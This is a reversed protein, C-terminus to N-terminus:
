AGYTIKVIGSTDIVAEASYMWLAMYVRRVEVDFDLKRPTSMWQYVCSPDILYSATTTKSRVVQLGDMSLSTIGSNTGDGNVVQGAASVLKRGTTDLAGYMAKFLNSAAALTDFREPEALDLIGNDFATILAPGTATGLAITTLGSLGDLMAALRAEAATTSAALMRDWVMAEVQPGAKDILERTFAAKGSLASPNVTQSDTTYTALTPEIDEVHASVLNGSSAYKPIVFPNLDTLSGGSVLSGLVRPRAPRARVYLDGRFGAPTLSAVNAQTVFKEEFFKEIRHAAEGDGKAAAFGDKILNFEGSGGAFAYPAPENVMTVATPVDVPRQFTELLEKNGEKIAAALAAADFEPMIGEAEKSFNVETVRSGRFAPRTVASIEECLAASVTMHNGKITRGSEPIQVGMSFGVLGEKALMLVHDGDPINLVSLEVNLSGDKWEAKTIRGAPRNADHFMCFPTPYEPDFSVSGDKFEMTYGSRGAVGGAPYAVGKITRKGETEEAFVDSPKVEFTFKDSM